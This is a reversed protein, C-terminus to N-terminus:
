KKYNEDSLDDAYYFDLLYLVQHLIDSYISTQAPTIGITELIDEAVIENYSKNEFLKM